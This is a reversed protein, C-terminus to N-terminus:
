EEMRKSASKVDQFTILPIERGEIPIKLLEEIEKVNQVSFYGVYLDISLISSTKIMYKITECSAGTIKLNGYLNISKIFTNGIVYECLKEVGENTMENYGLDIHTINKNKKILEGLSEICDDDLKNDNMNIKIINKNKSELLSNILMSFGKSTIEDLSLDIEVLYDIEKKKIMNSLKFILDDNINKEYLKLNPNGGRFFNDLLNEFFFNYDDNHLGSIDEIVSSKIIDDIYKFGIHSLKSKSYGFELRKLSKHGVVYGHFIELVGDNLFYGPFSVYEIKRSNKIIDGILHIIDDDFFPHCYCFDYVMINKLFNFFKIITKKLKNKECASSYAKYRRCEFTFECYYVGFYHIMSNKVNPVFDNHDNNEFFNQILINFKDDKLDNINYIFCEGITSGEDIDKLSIKKLLFGIESKSNDM